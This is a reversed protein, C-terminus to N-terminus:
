KKNKYIFSFINYTIFALLLGLLAGCIVDAPFHKGVYIRSYSVIAAWIFIFITFWKKKFTLSTFLALGFVNSAHNSVFGYLGGPSELLRYMGKLSEDHCPRLREFYEKIFNAITDTLGFTIIIGAFFLLSFYLDRRKISIKESKTFSPEFFLWLAILIYLPAWVLRNSFFVMIVDFLPSHWGNLTVFLWKDYHILNDIM